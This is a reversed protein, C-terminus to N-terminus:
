SYAAIILNAGKVGMIAASAQMGVSIQGPIVSADIVRLKQTGRVRMQLDLPFEDTDGVPVSGSFHCSSSANAKIIPKLSDTTNYEPGPFLETANPWYQMVERAILVAAAMTNLDEDVAYLNATYNTPALPDSSTLNLSGNAYLNYTLGLTLTFNTSYSQSAPVLATGLAWQVTADNTPHSENVKVSLYTANPNGFFGQGTESYQVAAANFVVFNLVPLDPQNYTMTFHQQNRIKQGIIDNVVRRPIGFADLTSRPGIGSNMLIKPTQLTGASIIVELDAYYKRTRGRNDICEVGTAVNSFTSAFLIHTVTCGTVLYLNRNTELAPRLYAVSTSDRVGNYTNYYYNTIGTKSIGDNPDGTYNYGAALLADFFLTNEPLVFAAPEIHIPGSLGHNEPDTYATGTVNEIEKYLPWVDYSTYGPLGTADWDYRYPRFWGMGNAIM